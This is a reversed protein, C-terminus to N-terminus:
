KDASLKLLPGSISDLAEVTNRIIKVAKNPLRERWVGPMDASQRTVQNSRKRSHSLRTVLNAVSPTWELQCRQYMRQFEEEPRACLVDYKFLPWDHEVYYSWLVTYGLYWWMAVSHWYETTRRGEEELARCLVPYHYQFAGQGLMKNIADSPTIDRFLNIQHWSSIQDLAPRTLLVVRSHFREALREIKFCGWIFKCVYRGAGLPRGATRPKKPNLRNFRLRGAFISQLIREETPATDNPGCFRWQDQQAQPTMKMETDVTCGFLPEYAYKVGPAEALVRGVWSTGSRAFGVIFAHPKM